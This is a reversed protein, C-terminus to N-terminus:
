AAKRKKDGKRKGEVTGPVILTSRRDILNKRWEDLKETDGEWAGGIKIIPLDMERQWQLVTAESRKMYECIEKMGALGAM